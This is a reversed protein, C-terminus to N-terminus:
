GKIKPKYHNRVVLGVMLQNVICIESHPESVASCAFVLVHRSWFAAISHEVASMRCMSLCGLSQLRANAIHMAAITAFVVM